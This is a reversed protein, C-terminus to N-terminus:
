LEGLSNLTAEIYSYNTSWSCTSARSMLELLIDDVVVEKKEDKTKCDGFDYGMGVADNLHSKARERILERSNIRLTDIDTFIGMLVLSGTSLWQDGEYLLYVKKQEM